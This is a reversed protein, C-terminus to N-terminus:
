SLGEDGDFEKDPLTWTSHRYDKRGTRSKRRPHEDLGAHEEESGNSTSSELMDCLLTFSVRFLRTAAIIAIVVTFPLLIYEFTQM